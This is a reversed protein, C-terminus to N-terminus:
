FFGQGSKPKVTVAFLPFDFDVIVVSRDRTCYYFDKPFHNLWAKADNPHAPLNGYKDNFKSRFEVIKMRGNECNELFEVVQDRFLKKIDRKATHASTQASLQASQKAEYVAIRKLKRASKPQQASKPPKPALTM